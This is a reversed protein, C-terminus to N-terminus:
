PRRLGLDRLAKAPYAQYDRLKETLTFKASRRLLHIVLDRMVSMAEPATGTRLTSADEGFTVDQVRHVRNEITWHGRTLELLSKPSALEHPLSTVYYHQEVTTQGQQHRWCTRCLVQQLGPWDLHQNLEPSAELQREDIRGHGSALDTDAWFQLPHPGTRPGEFLEILDALLTPQNDKVEWLYHGGQRLVLTSLERQCFMADGTITQGHLHRGQLLQPAVTIENHKLGM